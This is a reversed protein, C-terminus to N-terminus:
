RVITVQHTFIAWLLAFISGLLLTGIGGVVVMVINAKIMFPKVIDDKWDDLTKIDTERKEDAKNLRILKAAAGEEGNGNM